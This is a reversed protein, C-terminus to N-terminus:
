DLLATLFNGNLETEDYQICGGDPILLSSGKCDEYSGNPHDGHEDWHPAICFVVSHDM